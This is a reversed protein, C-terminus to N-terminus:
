IRDYAAYLKNKYGCGSEIEDGKPYGFLHEITEFARKIDKKVKVVKSDKCNQLLNHYNEVNDKVLITGTDNPRALGRYFSNDKYQKGFSVTCNDSDIEMVSSLTFDYIYEDLGKYQKDFIDMNVDRYFPNDSSSVVFCSNKLSNYFLEKPNSKIDFRTFDYWADRVQSNILHIETQKQGRKGERYYAESEVSAPLNQLIITPKFNLINDILSRYGNEVMWGSTIYSSRSDVDTELEQQEQFEYLMNRLLKVSTENQETTFRTPNNIFDQVTSTFELGNLVQWFESKSSNLFKYKLLAKSEGDWKSLFKHRQRVSSLILVDEPLYKTGLMVDMPKIDSFLQLYIGYPINSMTIFPEKSNNFREIKNIIANKVEVVDSHKFEHFINQTSQTNKM